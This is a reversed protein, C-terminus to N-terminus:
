IPNYTLVAIGCEFQRSSVLKFNQKETVAQFIPMGTGIVAPNVFLNLEDILKEKILASVLQGGGYVIIDGGARNKLANIEDALAGNAVDTSDWISETITKSFVVKHTEVMKKSFADTSEPNNFTATWHPIFGQALNKGLLITDVPETLQMVFAKIDDTWNFTLWDMEGNPGAIFGDITTQVQLKLKRM